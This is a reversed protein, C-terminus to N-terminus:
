QKPKEGLRKLFETFEGEPPKQLRELVAKERLADETRGANRYAIMLSYHAAESEPRLRAARELLPIADAPRQADLRLKGLSLLAESFDPKWAVARELRAAAEETKQQAIAIQGLQYEAVADAPNLRLEEQFERAAGDLAKPSHSEMLIARGLRFHLDLARPQKEIAKRYEGIAEAYRGQIEFIEASIQNVRFSAPTRQFMEAVADNWGKLHLKATQFLVDEDAPYARALRSLTQSAERTREGALDCRALALGALRHLDSPPQDAFFANLDARATECGGTAARALSLFVRATHDDERALARELTEKAEAYKGQHFELIGKLVLHVPDRALIAEAKTYDGAEVAKLAEDVTTQALAPSALAMSFLLIRLRAGATFSTGRMTWSWTM